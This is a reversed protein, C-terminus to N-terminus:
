QKRRRVRLIENLSAVCTSFRHYKTTSFNVWFLVVMFDTINKFFKFIEANDMQKQTIKM